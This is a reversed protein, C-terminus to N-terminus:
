YGKDASRKIVITKGCLLMRAHRWEYSVHGPVVSLPGLEFAGVHPVVDIMKAAGLECHVLQCRGRDANTLEHPGESQLTRIM